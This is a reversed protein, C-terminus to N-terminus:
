VFTFRYLLHDKTKPYQMSKNYYRTQVINDIFLYSFVGTLLLKYLMPIINNYFITFYFTFAMMLGMITLAIEQYKRFFIFLCPHFNTPYQHHNAYYMKLEYYSIVCCDFIKWTSSLVISLILYVMADESKYNFMVLFSIFYIFFLFHIYRFIFLGLVNSKKLDNVCPYFIEVIYSLITVLLTVNLLKLYSNLKM